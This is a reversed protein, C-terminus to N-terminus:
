PFGVEWGPHEQLWTHAENAFPASEGELIEKTSPNAVPLRIDPWPITTLLPAKGAALERSAQVLEEPYVGPPPLTKLWTPTAVGEFILNKALGHYKNVANQLCREQAARCRERIDKIRLKTQEKKHDKVLKALNDIFQDTQTLLYHLRKNKKEDILTRYGADDEEMLRRMRERDIRQQTRRRDREATLIAKNIKSMRVSANRHYERFERGHSLVANLFEQHKQRRRKEQEHKMQRELKETYRAERLSQKKPRRYAKINLATELSTDRRMASVIDQRLQRQFNLLRLSRLELELSVRQQPTSFVSLSSLTKIRQGIRSQIRQEREKLLEVPDLGQPRQISGIRSRGIIPPAQAAAMYAANPPPGSYTQYGWRMPMQHPPYNPPRSQPQQQQMQQQQYVQPPQSVEQQQQAPPPPRSQYNHFGPAIANAPPPIRGEALYLINEPVAQSKSLLKYASIQARLQGLQSKIFGSPQIMPPPGNNGVSANPPPFVAGPGGFSQGPHPYMPPPAPGDYVHGSIPQTRGVIVNPPAGGPMQASLPPPPQHHVTPPGQTMTPNVYGSQGPPPFVQQQQQQQQQQQSPPPPGTQPRPVEQGNMIPPPANTSPMQIQQQQMEEILIFNFLIIRLSNIVLRLSLELSVSKNSILGTLFEGCFM